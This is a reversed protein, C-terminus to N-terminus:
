FQLDKKANIMKVMQKTLDLEEMRLKHGYFKLSKNRITQLNKFNSTFKSNMRASETNTTVTKCWRNLKKKESKKKIPPWKISLHEPCISRPTRYNNWKKIRKNHVFLM